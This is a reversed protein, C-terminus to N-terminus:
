SVSTAILLAWLTLYFCLGFVLAASLVNKLTHYNM